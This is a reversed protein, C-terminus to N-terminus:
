VHPIKPSTLSPFTLMNTKLSYPLSFGGSDLAFACDHAFECGNETALPDNVISQYRHRQQLINQLAGDHIWYVVLVGWLQSYYDFFALLSKARDLYLSIGCKCTHNLGLSPRRQISRWSAPICWWVRIWERAVVDWPKRWGFNSELM